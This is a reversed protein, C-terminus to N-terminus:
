IRCGRLAISILRSIFQLNRECGGESTIDIYTELPEGTQEDFDVHLYFKGCGNIITRKASHLDDDVGIIMGRRLEPSDSQVSPGDTTLIGGRKCGSRYVTVGKLGCKWAQLYTDKVVNVTAHSPLNITSSISADIFEQWAAQM